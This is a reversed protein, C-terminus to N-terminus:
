STIMELYENRIKRQLMEYPLEDGLGFRVSGSRLLAEFPAIHFLIAKEGGREWTIAYADNYPSGPMMMAEKAWRWPPSAKPGEHKNRWIFTELPDQEMIWQFFSSTALRAAEERLLLLYGKNPQKEKNWM